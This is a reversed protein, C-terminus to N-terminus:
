SKPAPQLLDDTVEELVIPDLREAIADTMMAFGDSEGSATDWAERSPWQAYAVWWGDEAQHLRSGLSGAQELFLRTVRRWGERYQEEKGPHLRVRYIVCFM